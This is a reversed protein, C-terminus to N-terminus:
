FTLTISPTDDITDLWSDADYIHFSLELTEISEIGNKEFDSDSFSITDVARKGAVVDCSFIPNVMFGNVSVDRAQVTVNKSGTNYIYVVVSPGLISSSNDVGKVVIEIDNADYVKNGSDDYSQTHEVAASTKVSVPDTDIITDWSDSNYIHFSFTMEAITTIGAATLDSKMFTLGENAKKGPAVEASLITDIMYGNVSENRTQVTISDASNNEILLMLEPGFLSDDDFGTATIKIGGEDFLVSEDVTLEGSRASTATTGPNSAPKSSTDTGSSKPPTVGCGALATAVMAVALILCLLKVARKM